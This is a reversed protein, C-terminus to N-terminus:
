GHWWQPRLLCLGTLWAPIAFPLLVSFWFGLRFTTERYKNLDNPQVIRESLPGLNYCLNAVGMMFLYGVGQVVTTLLTIAGPDPIADISIGWFVVVVYCAFALIGALVLGLNYRKRRRGWWEKASIREVPTSM